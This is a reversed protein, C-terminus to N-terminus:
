AEMTLYIKGTEWEDSTEALIASVLRLLAAENPFLGAVRTRRKLEKNVREFPNTTLLRRQHDRPQGGLALGEDRGPVRDVAPVRGDGLAEVGEARVDRGYGRVGLRRAVSALHPHEDEAAGPEDAAPDGRVQYGAAILDGHHVPTLGLRSIRVAAGVEM